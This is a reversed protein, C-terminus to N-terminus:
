AMLNEIDIRNRFTEILMERTLEQNEGLELHPIHGLCPVDTLQELTAANTRTAEDLIPMPNNLIYGKVPISSNHAHSLTLLTHNLAGLKSGVVVIVPVEMDRALNSFTYRHVLPVLLGGSGEVLVVDHQDSIRRFISLINEPLISVGAMDAAVSPALPPGFRYPCLEALSLSSNSFFALLSSDRSYLVGNQEKCGTEVPKMVGVRKGLSVLYAALGCTVLTKGVGTDTGTILLQM